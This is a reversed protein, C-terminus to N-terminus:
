LFSRGRPKPTVKCFFKGIWKLALTKQQKGGFRMLMNLPANVECNLLRVCAYVKFQILGCYGHVQLCGCCNWADFVFQWASVRAFFAIKEGQHHKAVFDNHILWWPLHHKNTILPYNAEPEWSEDDCSWLKESFNTARANKNPFNQQAKNYKRAVRQMKELQLTM